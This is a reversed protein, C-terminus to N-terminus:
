RGEICAALASTAPQPSPACHIPVRLTTHDPVPLELLARGCLTVRVLDCSADDHGLVVVRWSGEPLERFTGRAVAAQLRRPREAQEVGELSPVPLCISSVSESGELRLRASRLVGLFDLECCDPPKCAAPTLELELALVPNPGCAAAIAAAVVLLSRRLEPRPSSSWTM